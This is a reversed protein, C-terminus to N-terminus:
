SEETEEDLDIIGHEHLVELTVTIGDLKGGKYALYGIVPYGILNVIDFWEM